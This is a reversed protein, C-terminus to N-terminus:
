KPKLLSAGRIAWLVVAFAIVLGVVAVKYVDLEAEVASLDPAQAMATGITAGVLATGTAIKGGLSKVTAAARHRLSQPNNRNM